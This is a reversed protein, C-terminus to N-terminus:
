EENISFGAYAALEMLDMKKDVVPIESENVVYWGHVGKDRIRKPHLGEKALEDTVMALTLVPEVNLAQVRNSKDPESVEFYVRDGKLLGKCGKMRIQSYHFFYDKKDEGTIFGYGKQSIFWKVTGKM